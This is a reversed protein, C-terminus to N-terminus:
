LRVESLLRKMNDGAIAAKAEQSIDAGALAVMAAGMQIDPVGSGYLLREPGYTRVFSALGEALQYNSTDLHLRSYREILPRFYRDDGWDSHSHVIATLNPFDSLLPSLKDWHPGVLFPIHRAVIEELLPGLTTSDLLYRHEDPYARVAKVNYRRIGEIFGDVGGFEGTQSPVIAWTRHLRTEGDTAELLLRNGVQPSEIRMSIHYVLGESVGCFDMEDVLDSITALFLGDPRGPTGFGCNCDFWDFESMVM